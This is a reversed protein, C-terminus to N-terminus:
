IQGFWNGNGILLLVGTGMLWMFCRFAFSGVISTVAAATSLAQRNGGRMAMGACITPIVGGICVVGIWFLAAYAGFASGNSCAWIISLVISAIGFWMVIRANQVIADDEDHKVALITLYVSLGSVGTTAICALPFLPTDWGPRGEMLYSCGTAAPLVIGLIGAIIAIVKIASQSANRKILVIYIITALALLGTLLAEVFIGSTPHSLANMMREPHSLHFASCIGAVIVLIIGLVLAIMRVDPKKAKQTFENLSAGAILWGGIGNLVTFLVLPWQIDM